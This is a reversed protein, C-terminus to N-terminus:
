PNLLGKDVGVLERERDRFAAKVRPGRLHQTRARARAQTGQPADCKRTRKECETEANSGKLALLQVKQGSFPFCFLISLVKWYFLSSASFFVIIQPFGIHTVQPSTNLPFPAHLPSYSFRPNHPGLPYLYNFVANLMKVCVNITHSYPLFTRLQSEFLYQLVPFSFLCFKM